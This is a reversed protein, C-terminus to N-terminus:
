NPELCWFPKAHKSSEKDMGEQTRGQELQELKSKKRQKRGEKKGEKVKKKERTKNKELNFDIYFGTFIHPLYLLTWFTM